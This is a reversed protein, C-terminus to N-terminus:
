EETSSTKERRVKESNGKTEGATASAYLNCIIIAEHSTSKKIHM